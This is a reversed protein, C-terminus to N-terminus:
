HLESAPTVDEPDKVDGASVGQLFSSWTDIIQKLADAFDMDKRQCRLEAAILFLLVHLEREQKPSKLIPIFGKVDIEVDV